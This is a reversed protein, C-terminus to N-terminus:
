PATPSPPDTFTDLMARPIRPAVGAVGVAYLGQMPFAYLPGLERRLEPEERTTSFAEPVFLDSVSYGDSATGRLGITHWNDILTAQEAPFLLSRIAPRGYRNLRLSGDSGVVQCHAGMWNANRCGSAFDWRGTVRYVGA